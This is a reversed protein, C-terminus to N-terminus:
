ISIDTAQWNRSVQREVFVKKFIMKPCNSKKKLPETQHHRLYSLPWSKFHKGDVFINKM